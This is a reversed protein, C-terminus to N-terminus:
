TPLYICPPLSSEGNCSICCFPLNTLWGLWPHSSFCCPASGLPPSSLICLSSSICMSLSM